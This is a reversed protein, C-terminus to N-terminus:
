VDETADGDRFLRSPAFWYRVQGDPHLANLRRVESEAQERSRLVAKVTVLTELAAHTGHFMDARLVVFVEQRPQHCKSM